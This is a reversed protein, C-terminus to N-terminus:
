FAIIIVTMITIIDDIMGFAALKLSDSLPARSDPRCPDVPNRILVSM